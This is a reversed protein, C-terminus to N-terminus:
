KRNLEELGEPLSAVIRRDEVNVEVCIDPVLPVLIENAGRVELLAPGGHDFWGTVEGLARGDPAVVRCGVLDSLYHQGAPAPPRERLPIRIESGILAEAESRNEIGRFKLVLRGSHLWSREIELPLGCDSGSRFLRVALGPAFREPSSGMSEALVEGQLGRAGRVLALVM